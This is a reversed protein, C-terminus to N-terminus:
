RGYPNRLLKWNLQVAREAIKQPFIHAHQVIVKM